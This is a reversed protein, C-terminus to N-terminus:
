ELVAVKGHVPNKRGARSAGVGKGVLAIRAYSAGDNPGRRHIRDPIQDVEFRGRVSSAARSLVMRPDVRLPPDDGPAWRRPPVTGVRIDTPKGAILTARSSSLGDVSEVQTPPTAVSEGVRLLEAARIGAALGGPLDVRGSGDVHVAARARGIAPPRDQGVFRSANAVGSRGLGNGTAGVKQMLARTRLITEAPQNPGEEPSQSARAHPAMRPVARM